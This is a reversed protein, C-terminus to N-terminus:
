LAFSIAADISTLGYRAIMLRDLGVAVGCCDPLGHELAALLAEDAPVEPKGSRIRQRNDNAFRERQESADLLERYGNALEVGNFFVEFREAVQPDRPDIRALAAQDAPYHHVVVLCNDPLAPIVVHSMLLDIWTARDSGIEKSLAPTVSTTLDAARRALDEIGVSLPDLKTAALFATRYDVSEIALPFNEHDSGSGFVANILACSEDIMQTLTFERRYWEIMTFEPQHLSGIERDRFVKGIQYIDPSGAALLRKMAYEPSTQLFLAQNPHSAIRCHINTLNVDSVGALSLAPTEVEMIDLHDFFERARRLMAARNGLMEATASPRWSTTNGTV